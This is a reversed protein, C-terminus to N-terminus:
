KSTKFTLTKKDKDITYEGFEEALKKDGFSIAAKQGKVVTVEVNEITEEGIKLDTLYLVSNDVISGDENIAKAKEAFDNITIKYEKLFNMAEEMSISIRNSGNEIAFTMQKNNVICTSKVVEGEIVVPITNMNPASIFTVTGTKNLSDNKNTSPVYDDRLIRFETRRNLNHAAEQEAKSPLDKIYEPTLTIGKNFVFEKGEYASRTDKLLTRPVKEGYGKAVLRGPEIGLSILYDVCSQARRQSLTDNTMPIPRVDTHSRLEIVFTPNDIMIKHLGKLSDQYQPKLDWKALDYLIDPLVIPEKPIPNLTFNHKLDKNEKLGVTTEKGKTNDNKYYGLKEVNMTYTVDLMIKTKDFMYYGKKDTYTTYSTNNSGSIVVMVSDIPQLSVSDKIIGSLSFVLPRLKFTWIDFGGDAKGEKRNSAFYGKEVYPAGSLPDNYVTEDFLITIDDAESNIPVQLNVPDSWVDGKLSTQFLDFGGVGPLGKTSYYLNSDNRLSPFMDAAWTNVKPGLNAPADFPKSKKSRKAVWIDYGGEGGPINSSFYMTLEDSSIAPHVFDFTDPGLKIEEAEGWGKGKKQSTYIKCTVVKKKEVGCRTFYITSGKSNAVAEGENAKTNVFVEGEEPEISAPETWEGPWETNKSKPKESMYIDSFSQGTWVDTGKGESGERSSSIFLQNKKSPNGWAPAWDNDRTNLKKFNTVEHRTPTKVWAAGLECSKIKIDIHPDDPVREKYKKYYSEAAAFDKYLTRKIDGLHLFIIPDDKQYNIKELKLYNQEAKKLNGTLRYCESLRFLVFNKLIKNTKIKSYAKKYLDAALNYQFTSFAKDAEQTYNKKQAMGLNSIFLLTLLLVGFTFIRKM